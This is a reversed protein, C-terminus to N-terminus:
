PERFIWTPFSIGKARKRLSLKKPLLKKKPFKRRLLKKELLRKRTAEKVPSEEASGCASVTLIMVLVIFLLLCKNAM